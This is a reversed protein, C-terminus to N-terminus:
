DCSWLATHSSRVPRCPWRSSPRRGCRRTPLAACRRGCRLRRYLALGDVTGTACNNGTAVNCLGINIFSKFSLTAATAGTFDLPPLIFSQDTPGSDYTGVVLFNGSGGTSNHWQSDSFIWWAPGSVYVSTYGNGIYGAWGLPANTFDYSLLTNNPNATTMYDAPAQPIQTPSQSAAARALGAPLLLQLVLTTFLLLHLSLTRSYCQSSRRFM